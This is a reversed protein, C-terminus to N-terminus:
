KKDESKQPQYPSPLPMWAVVDIFLRSEISEWGHEQYHAVHMDGYRDQVLYYKCVDDVYQNVEPLRESVPIWKPEQPNVSSLSKIVRLGFADESAHHGYESYMWEDYRTIFAQRSILDNDKPNEIDIIVEKNM